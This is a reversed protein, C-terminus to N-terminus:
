DKRPLQEVGEFREPHEKRYREAYEASKKDYEEKTVKTYGREYVYPLDIEGIATNETEYNVYYFLEKEM